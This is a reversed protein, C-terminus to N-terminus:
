VMDELGLLFSGFNWAILFFVGVVFFASFFFKVLFKPFNRIQPISNTFLKPFYIVGFYCIRFFFTCLIQINVM